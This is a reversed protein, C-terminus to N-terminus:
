LFLLYFIYNVVLLTAYSHLQFYSAQCCRERHNAFFVAKESTEQARLSAKTFNLEASLLFYQVSLYIVVASLLSIVIIIILRIKQM